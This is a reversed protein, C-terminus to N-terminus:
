LHPKVWNEFVWEELEEHGVKKLSSVVFVDQLASERQMKAKAKAVENKTLKDAKTLVIAMPIGEANVFRKIMREDSSWERRIDMVLILGCLSERGLLYGEIMGQWEAMEDGSRAAWGYGPMDVLTYKKNIEFFNLLRTKGPTSSVKAIRHNTIVNILSSKGANSRGAIAIEVGKDPPFDKPLVASKIFKASPM